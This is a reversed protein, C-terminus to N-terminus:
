LYKVLDKSIETELKDKNEANGVIKVSGDSFIGMMASNSCAVSVVNKWDGASNRGLDFGEPSKGALVIAGDKLVGIAYNNEVGIAIINEWNTVGNRADSAKGFCGVTGDKKLWVSFNYTTDIDVADTASMEVSQMDDAIKVVGDKSLGVIRGKNGVIKVMNEWTSVIDEVPSFGKVIVKGASDIAYTCNAGAYVYKIGTLDGLNCQGDDTVGYATVTGDSRLMVTHRAGASYQVVGDFRKPNGDGSYVTTYNEDNNSLCVQSNFLSIKNARFRERKKRETEAKLKSIYSTWLTYGKEGAFVNAFVFKNGCNFCDEREIDCVNGCVQCVYSSTLKEM